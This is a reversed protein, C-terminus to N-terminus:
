RRLRHRYGGYHHSRPRYYRHGYYRPRYRYYRSGGYYYRPRYYRYGYSPYGGYYYRPRYYRYAHYPYGGYYYHHRYIGGLILATAIGAGIGWGWGRHAEARTAAGFTVTLALVAAALLATVKRLKMEAESGNETSKWDCKNGPNLLAAEHLDIASRRLNLGVADSLAGQPPIELVRRNGGTISSIPPAVHTQRFRV